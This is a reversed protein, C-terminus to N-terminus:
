QGEAPPPSEKAKKVPVLRREKVDALNLFLGPWHPSGKPIYGIEFREKYGTQVTLEHEALLNILNITVTRGYRNVPTAALDDARAAKLIVIKTGPILRAHVRSVRKVDMKDLKAVRTLRRDASAFLELLAPGQLWGGPRRARGKIVEPNANPAILEQPKTNMLAELVEPTLGEEKPEPVPGTPQKEPEQPVNPEKPM